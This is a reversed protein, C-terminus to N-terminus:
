AEGSNESLVKDVADRLESPRVPKFMYDRIGLAEAREVNLSESYGTIM